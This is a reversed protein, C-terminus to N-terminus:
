FRRVIFLYLALSASVLAGFLLIGALDHSWRPSVFVKTYDAKNPPAVAAPNAGTTTHSSVYNTVCQSQVISNAHSSCAAQAEVYVRGNSQPNAAAQAAAVARNYGATLVVTQSSGMHKATYAKLTAQDAATDLSNTDKVLITNALAAADHRNSNMQWWGALGLVAAVILFYRIKMKGEVM